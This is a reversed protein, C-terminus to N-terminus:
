IRDVIKEEERILSFSFVMNTFRLFKILENIFWYDLM